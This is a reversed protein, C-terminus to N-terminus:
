NEHQNDKGKQLKSKGQMNAAMAEILKEKFSHTPNSSPKANPEIPEALTALHNISHSTVGILHQEAGVQLVMIREKTGAMMSSVVTMQGNGSSGGTFRRMVFALGFIVGIVVFLSLSISLITALDSSPTSSPTSGQAWCFSPLACLLVIYGISKLAKKDLSKSERSKVLLM